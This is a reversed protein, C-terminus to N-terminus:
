RAPALCLVYGDGGTEGKWFATEVGPFPRCISRSSASFEAQTKDEVKGVVKYASDPSTCEVVRVSDGTGRAICDGVTATDPDSQRAFYGAVAILAVIVGIVILGVVTGRNGGRARAPQQPPGAYQPQPPGQMYPDSM